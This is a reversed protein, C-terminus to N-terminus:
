HRAAGESWCHDWRGQYGATSIRPVRSQMAEKMGPAGIYAETTEKMKTLVGYVVGRRAHVAEGGKYTVQMYPKGGKDAVKFPQHKMDAKIAADSSRWRIFYKADFLTNEPNMAVQDRAADGLVRESDTFAAYSPTM